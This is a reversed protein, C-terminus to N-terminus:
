LLKVEGMQPYVSMAKDSGSLLQFVPQCHKGANFKTDGSFEQRTLVLLFDDQPDGIM